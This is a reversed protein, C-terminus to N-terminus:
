TNIQENHIKEIQVTINISIKKKSDEPNKKKQIKQALIVHAMEGYLRERDLCADMTCTMRARRGVVDRGKMGCMPM